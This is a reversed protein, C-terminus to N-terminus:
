QAHTGRQATASGAWPTTDLYRFEAVREPKSDGPRHGPRRSKSSRRGPRRPSPVTTRGAPDSRRRRCSNQSAMGRRLQDPPRRRLGAPGPGALRVRRHRDGAAATAYAPARARGTRYIGRHGQGRRRGADTGPPDTRRVALGAGAPHSPRGPRHGNGDRAPPARLGQGRQRGPLRWARVDDRGAPQGLGAVRGPDAAAGVQRLRHHRRDARAARGQAPRHRVARRLVTRDGGAHVPRVGAVPGRHSRRGATGPRTRGAPHLPRAARGLRAHRVRAPGPRRRVRGDPQSTVPLRHPRTV